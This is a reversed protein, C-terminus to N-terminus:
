GSRGIGMRRQIRGMRRTDKKVILVNGLRERKQGAVKKRIKRRAEATVRWESSHFARWARTAGLPVIVRVM